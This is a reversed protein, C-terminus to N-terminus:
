IEFMLTKIEYPKLTVRIRLPKSAELAEEMLNCECWQKVALRTPLTLKGADARSSTSFAPDCPAM